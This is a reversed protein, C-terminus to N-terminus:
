QLKSKYRYLFYGAESRKKDFHLYEDEPWYNLILCIESQAELELLSTESIEMFHLKEKVSRKLYGEVFNSIVSVMARRMQSKLGFDESKPLKETLQYTIILLEKFKQWIILKHYSKQTKDM